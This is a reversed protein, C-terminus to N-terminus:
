NLYEQRYIDKYRALNSVVLDRFEERTFSTKEESFMLRSIGRHSHGIWAEFDKEAEVIEIIFDGDAYRTIKDKTQKM